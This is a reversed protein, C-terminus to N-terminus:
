DAVECNCEHIVPPMADTMFNREQPAPEMLNVVACRPQLNNGGEVLVRGSNQDVDSKCGGDKVDEEAQARLARAKREQQGPNGLQEIVPVYAGRVPKAIQDLSRLTVTDMMLAATMAVVERIKRKPVHEEAREFIR